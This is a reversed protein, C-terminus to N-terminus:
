RDEESRSGSAMRGSTTGVTKFDPHLILQGDDTEESENLMALVYTKLIKSLHRFKIVSKLYEDLKDPKWSGPLVGGPLMKDYQARYKRLLQNMQSKQSSLEGFEAEFQIRFGDENIIQRIMDTMQQNSSPQALTCIGYVKDELEKLDLTIINKLDLLYEKDLLVGKMHADSMVKANLLEHPYIRGLLKGDTINDSQSRVKPEADDFVRLSNRADDVAYVLAKEPHVYEFTKKNGLVDKFRQPYEHLRMATQEKLSISHVAENDLYCMIMSDHYNIQGNPRFVSMPIGFVDLVRYDYSFNHFIIEREDTSFLNKIVPKVQTEWALQTFKTAFIDRKAFKHGLPIYYGKNHEGALSVGVLNFKKWWVNLSNTETDAGLIKFRKLDQYMEKLKSLSDVMVYEVGDKKTTWKPTRTGSYGFNTRVFNGLIEMQSLVASRLKPTHFVVAPHYMIYCMRKKSGIRTKFFHGAGPNDEPAVVGSSSDAGLFIILVPDVISIEKMLYPACSRFYIRKLKTDKSPKCRITNTFSVQDTNLGCYQWLLKNVAIGARGVFPRGNRHEDDGPAHGVIMIRGRGRSGVPWHNNARVQEGLECRFCDSLMDKRFETIGEVDQITLDLKEM